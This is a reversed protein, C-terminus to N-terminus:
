KFRYSWSSIIEIESWVTFFVVNLISLIKNEVSGNQLFKLEYAVLPIYGIFPFIKIFQITGKHLEKSYFISCKSCNSQHLTIGLFVLNLVLM